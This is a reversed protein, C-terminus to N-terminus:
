PMTVTFAFVHGEDTGVFLSGNAVTLGSVRGDVAQKWLESGDKASYAIVVNNGGALLADGAKILAFPTDTKIKWLTSSGHDGKAFLGTDTLIYLVGQDEILNNADKFSALVTMNTETKGWEKLGCGRAVHSKDRVHAYNAVLSGDVSVLAYSGADYHRGISGDVKGTKRDFVSPSLRGQMLYILQDTVLISGMPTTGGDVKYIEKGSRADLACLYTKDWSTLSSAFYLTGDQIAVGTRVPWKPILSGNNGILRYDEKPIPTYKWNLVGNTANLCYVFGDDSGVYVKGEWYTPPFRVPGLTRFVWKSSGTERDYASVCDTMASGSFVLDGAVTVFPADDFNRLADQTKGDTAPASGWHDVDWLAPGAWATQQPVPSQKEWALKLKSFDLNESTVASRRNDHLHTPWDEAYGYCAVSCLIGTLIGKEFGRM